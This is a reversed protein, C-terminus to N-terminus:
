HNRVPAIGMEFHDPRGNPQVGRRNQGGRAPREM